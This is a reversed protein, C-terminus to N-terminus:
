GRAARRIMLGGDKRIENDCIPCRWTPAFQQAPRSHVLQERVELCRSCYPDGEGIKGVPWYVGREYVVSERQQLKQKAASLESSLLEIKNVLEVVQMRLETNEFQKALENLTKASDLMTKVSALAMSIEAVM